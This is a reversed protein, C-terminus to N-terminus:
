NEEKITLYYCEGIDINIPSDSWFTVIFNEETMASVTHIKQKGKEIIQKDIVKIKSKEKIM